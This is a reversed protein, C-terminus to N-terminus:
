SNPFHIKEIVSKQNKKHSFFNILLKINSYNKNLKNKRLIKSCSNIAYKNKKNIKYSKYIQLAHIQM